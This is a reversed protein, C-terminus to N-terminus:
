IVFSLARYLGALCNPLLSRFPSFCSKQQSFFHSGPAPLTAPDGCIRLPHGPGCTFNARFKLLISHPTTPIFRSNKGVPFPHHSKARISLPMMGTRDADEEGHTRGRWWSDGEDKNRFGPRPEYLHECCLEQTHHGTGVIEQGRGGWM